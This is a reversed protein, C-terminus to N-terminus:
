DHFIKFEGNQNFCVQFITNLLDSTKSDLVSLYSGIVPHYVALGKIRDVGDPGEEQVLNTLLRAHDDPNIATLGPHSRQDPVFFNCVSMQGSEDTAVQIYGVRCNKENGGATLEEFMRMATEESLVFNM